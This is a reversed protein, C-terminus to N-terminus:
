VESEHTNGCGALRFRTAFHWRDLLHRLRDALEHAPVPARADLLTDRWVVVAGRGLQLNAGRGRGNPLPLLATVSAIDGPLTPIEVRVTGVEGQLEPLTVRAVM